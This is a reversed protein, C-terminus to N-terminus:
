SPHWFQGWGGAALATGGYQKQLLLFVVFVSCLCWGGAAELVLVSIPMTHPPAPSRKPYSEQAGQGEGKLIVGVCVGALPLGQKNIGRLVLEM